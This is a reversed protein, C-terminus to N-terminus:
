EQEACEYLFKGKPLSQITNDNTEQLAYPIVKASKLKIRDRVIYDPNRELRRLTIRAEREEIGIRYSATRRAPGINQYIKGDKM